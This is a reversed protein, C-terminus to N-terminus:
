SLNNCNESGELYIDGYSFNDLALYLCSQESVQVEGYEKLEIIPM